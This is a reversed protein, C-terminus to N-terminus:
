LQRLSMEYFLGKREMLKEYTGQEAIKGKDLVIIRDCHRITSLRQAIVVRTCHLQNLNDSVQKQSINDLASTAEDFFIIDPKSILARAILIRQKQGGSLGSGSENVLTNLGMPMRRVDEELSAMRLAEWADEHTAWPATITINQFLDGTFLNGSQLCCGIKRRLSTKDVKALDYNDYYIGGALPQEFGLLLRMFTSKGSGSKGVIGVYEGPEIRLSLNDLVLPGEDEYRFSLGSVEIGGFLDEVQPAKAEMEPVAELIPKVSRLLPKIRALSPVVNKMEAMAAMMMGFASSFAIYDSPAVNNSLTSWFILMTGGISLFATLATYLRSIFAPNYLPKAQDTYHDLWRTFARNESGTLKIKQIGAFMNYELGSLKAAKETYMTQIKVTRRYVLVLILIQIALIGLAPFLLYKGYIWLQMLYILSLVASLGAGIITENIMGSLVSVNNLKASLEGSAHKSFFTPSLLFTRAMISNQTHLDVIHQVRTIYLNRTLTLLMTGITAGLLLGTIPLLDSADGTPIVTDFILKNAMPTFMGLLVVVLAALCLMLANPGSVVDWIFSVLDKIDLARLPLPKTFQIATPKLEHEMEKKSITRIIGNQDRYQYGLGNSTPTLALLHGDKAYGLLPGVCEHWWEGILRIRRMLIGRPRLIGILQEEPSFIDNEELDYDNIGLADLIQRLASQRTQPIAKKQRLFGLRQAGRDLAEVLLTRELQRRKNIQKIYIAM